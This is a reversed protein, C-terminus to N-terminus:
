SVLFGLTQCLSQSPLSSITFTSKSSLFLILYVVPIRIFIIKVPFYVIKEFNLIQNLKNLRRLIVCNLFCNLNKYGGSFSLTFINEYIDAITFEHTKM